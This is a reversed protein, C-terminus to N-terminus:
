SLSIEVRKSLFNIKRQSSLQLLLSRWTIQFTAASYIAFVSYIVHITAKQASLEIIVERFKRHAFFNRMNHNQASLTLFSETETNPEHWRYLKSTELLDVLVLNLLIFICSPNFNYLLILMDSFWSFEWAAQRKRGGTRHKASRGTQQPTWTSTQSDLTQTAPRYDHVM